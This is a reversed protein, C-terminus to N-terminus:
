SEERTFGVQSANALNLGATAMDGVSGGMPRYGGDPIAMASNVYAPNTASRGASTPRAEFAFTTGVLPFITADVQAAAYDQLFTVQAGGTLLGPTNSRAAFSMATNDQLESGIDVAVQQTDNSLDVAAGLVFPDTYVFATM